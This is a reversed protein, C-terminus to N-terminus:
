VLESCLMHWLSQLRNSIQKENNSISFVPCLISVQSRRISIVIYSKLLADYDIRRGDNKRDRDHLELPGKLVGLIDCNFVVLEFNYFLTSGPIKRNSQYIMHFTRSSSNQYWVTIDLIFLSDWPFENRFKNFSRNYRIVTNDFCKIPYKQRIETM